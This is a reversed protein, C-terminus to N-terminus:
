SFYQPRKSYRKCVREVTWNTPRQRSNVCAGCAILQAGSNKSLPKSVKTELFLSALHNSFCATGFSALFTDM